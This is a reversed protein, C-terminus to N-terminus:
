GGGIARIIEVTDGNKIRHEHLQERPIISSNVAVATGVHPIDLQELLKGVPIEMGLQHERGNLVISIM